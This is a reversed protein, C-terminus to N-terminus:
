SAVEAAEAELQNALEEILALTGPSWVSGGLVQMVNQPSRGIERAIWVKTIGLAEVRERLTRIRRAEDESFILEPMLSHLIKDRVTANAEVYKTYQM